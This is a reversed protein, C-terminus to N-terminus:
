KVNIFGRLPNVFEETNTRIQSLKIKLIKFGCSRLNVGIRNIPLSIEIWLNRLSKEDRFSEPDKSIPMITM